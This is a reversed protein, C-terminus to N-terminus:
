SGAPVGLEALSADLAQDFLSHIREAAGREEAIIREALQETEPDGARRAVRKLLEYGAVELHEFAYAFGALKAPTDPQAQFFASWNLAGIRLAADKIRSPADGRAELRERVLREHESTQSLHEAYASALEHTGALATGKELLKMAQVEIAHADALYHNLQEGLDSPRLERLAAEAALEFSGSLRIAMTAEEAAIRRAIESTHNDGAREAVGWLLEYAAMEMHEYSFAHAVLKGTTDPQTRAFAVFGKGTLTGLLDKVVSPSASRESLRERVLLEHGETETLHEAFAAAIQPDSALKPATKLQALAQQEISHADTLFKTLQDQLDKSTM